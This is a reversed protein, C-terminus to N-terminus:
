PSEEASGGTIMSQALSRFADEVSVGTKASTVLVVWGGDRLPQLRDDSLEWDDVLDCKNVLLIFPLDGLSATLRAHIDVAQDLTDPRTGDCVLLYGGSGRVYNLRIQRAQDEGAIDWLLLNVQDSALEVVKKDVKVGVTTHYKDSFTSKVLRAVLSTKGVGFGGLMAVKKQIM